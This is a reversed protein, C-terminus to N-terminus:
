ATRICVYASAVCHPLTRISPPKRNYHPLSRLDIQLAGISRRYSCPQQNSSQFCSSFHGACSLNSTSKIQIPDHLHPRSTPKTSRSSQAHASSNFYACLSTLLLYALEAKRLRGNEMKGGISLGEEKVILMTAQRKSMRRRIM